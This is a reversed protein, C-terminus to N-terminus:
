ESKQNTAMSAARLTGAFSTSKNAAKAVAVRPKSSEQDASWSMRQEARELMSEFTIADEPFTSVGVKLDLDLEERAAAALREMVKVADEHSTEPLLTVFHNGNYTVVDCDKLQDVLLQAIRASIYQHIVTQQAEGVFRDLSHEISEATATIALLTAPHEFHRARRIERYIYAQGTEFPMTERMLHGVTLDTVTEQMEELRQAIRGVLVIVLGISGAELVTIPLYAGGIQYGLYHKLAFYPVLATLLVWFWSIRQLKPLLIMLVACAAAYAYVFSAINIGPNLRELNFFCFLGICTGAFWYRIEKM